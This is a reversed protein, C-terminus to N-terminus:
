RVMGTKVFKYLLFVKEDTYIVKRQQICSGGHEYVQTTRIVLKSIPEGTSTKLISVRRELVEETLYNICFTKLRDTILFPNLLVTDGKQKTLKSYLTITDPQTPSSYGRPLNKVFPAYEFFYTYDNYNFKIAKKFKLKKQKLIKENLVKDPSFTFQGQLDQLM